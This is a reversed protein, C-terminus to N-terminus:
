GELPYLPRTVRSFKLSRMNCQTPGPTNAMFLRKALPQYTVRFHSPSKVFVLAADTPDLGVGYYIAPDWEMVPNSTLLLHIDGVLLVATLGTNVIMGTAGPGKMVARGDTLAKIRGTVLVPDGESPVRKHGVRLTVEAGIGAAAAQRAAEADCLTLYSARGSRDAGQALLERLVAASEGVSGGSPADGTDGVVTPGDPAQLGIRIAEALPVLDPEFRDRVAWAAGAMEEAAARAGAADNDTVVLAAYGLDPIDLWPQVPFLSAALVRGSREMAQADAMLRKFEGEVTRTSTPSLIMHRKALAMAPRRRGRLTDLLLAATRAGTEYMDIHPYAQYGVLIDAQEVMRPTIHGHLDLSAAVPVTPGVVARVAALIAGEADPDDEVLMAGHLALLVGDVPLASRLRATLEGLLHDFAARTVPGGSCAHAALLPVPTAGAERLADLFASGEVRAAQYGELLEDGYWLYDAAFEDVGTPVPSFTNSEQMMSGVAIRM